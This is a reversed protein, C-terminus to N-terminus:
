TPGLKRVNPNIRKWRTEVNKGKKKKNGRVEIDNALEL